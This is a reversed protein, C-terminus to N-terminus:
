VDNNNEVKNLIEKTGDKTSVQRTAFMGIWAGVGIGTMAIKSGFISGFVGGGIAMAAVFGVPILIEALARKSTLENVKEIAEPWNEELWKKIDKNDQVPLPDLSLDVDDVIIRLHDDLILLLQYVV